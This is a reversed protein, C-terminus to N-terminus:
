IGSVEEITPVPGSPVAGSSVKIEPFRVFISRATAGKLQDAIDSPISLFLNVHEAQVNLDGITWANVECIRRVEQEVCAAIKGTLVRKRYKPCWVFPYAIKYIVYKTQQADMCTMIVFTRM